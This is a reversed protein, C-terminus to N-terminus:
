SQAECLEELAERESALTSSWYEALYQGIGSLEYATSYKESTERIAKFLSGLDHITSEGLGAADIAKTIVARSPCPTSLAPTHEPM